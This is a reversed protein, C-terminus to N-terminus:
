VGVGIVMTAPAAPGAGATPPTSHTRRPETTAPAAPGAGATPPTSHTPLPEPVGTEGDAGIRRPPQSVGTGSVAGIRSEVLIGAVKRGRALVDNRWKLGVEM